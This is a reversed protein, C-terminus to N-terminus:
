LDIAHYHDQNPPLGKPVLGFVRPHNNIDKHIDGLNYSILMQVNLSCLQAMVGQHGKKILKIM